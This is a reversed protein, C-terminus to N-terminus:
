YATSIGDKSKGKILTKKDFIASTISFPVIILTFL